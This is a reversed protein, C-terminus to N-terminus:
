TWVFFGSGCCCRSPSRIKWNWNKRKAPPKLPLLIKPPKRQRSHPLLPFIIPLDSRGQKKAGHFHQSCVRQQEGPIFDKRKISYVWKERLSEDKPFKHFSLEKNRKTNSYYGPVCCTYGGRVAKKMDTNVEMFSIGPLSNQSSSPLLLVAAQCHTRLLVLVLSVPLSLLSM